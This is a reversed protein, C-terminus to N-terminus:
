ARSDLEVEGQAFDDTQNAVPVQLGIRFLFLLVGTGLAVLGLTKWFMGQYRGAWPGLFRLFVFVGLAGLALLGFTSIEALLMM